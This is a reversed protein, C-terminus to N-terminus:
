RGANLRALIARAGGEGVPDGASGRASYILARAIRLAVRARTLVGMTLAQKSQELASNVDFLVTDLGLMFIPALPTDRIKERLHQLHNLIGVGDGLDGVGARYNPGGKGEIVNVVRQAHRKLVELNPALAGFVAEQHAIDLQDVLAEAIKRLEELEPGRPQTGAGPLALVMGVVLVLTVLRMM